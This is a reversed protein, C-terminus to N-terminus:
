YIIRSLAADRAMPWMARSRFCWVRVILASRMKSAAIGIVGRHWGEGAIVAAHTQDTDASELQSIALEFIQQQV